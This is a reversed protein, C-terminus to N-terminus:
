LFHFFRAQYVHAEGILMEVYQSRVCVHIIRCAVDTFLIANEDAFSGRCLRLKPSMNQPGELLQSDLYFAVFAPQLQYRLMLGPFDDILWKIRVSADDDQRSFM